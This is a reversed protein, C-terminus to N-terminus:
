PTAAFYARLMQGALPSAREGGRGGQEVLVAIAVTPAAAPAFGIFWSHPEGTGGLQATGSKGAVPVGPVQAGDTFLRGWTGEVARTMAGTILADKGADIVQGLSRSPVPTAHGERDVTATVLRPEMLIGGNAVAGAVLAMQLPTALVEAQGYAANALEVDDQFGGPLPGGGNTIQSAATPLDFPIPAGFGLRRSFADLNAGGTQLGALAYWINCSVETAGAFDLATSGTFPHHGDEITFGDVVLGTKESGPQQPFTTTAAVSGSGLGAIATVIKFVSGPVYRGQIARDLLPSDKAGRLAGWTAEATAPDALASADFTPTSAMALVEGNRPDLMVVSGRDHGLLRVALQQLPLSLSTRLDLRRDAPPLFKAVARSLPDAGGTGTLQAGYALELGSAGYVASAYGVPHSISDDAYVRYSTGDKAVRSSALVRGSRDLIRGRPAGQSLALVGADTPSSALEDARFVQWYSAGAAVLGFALVLAMALGGVRSAVPLEPRM